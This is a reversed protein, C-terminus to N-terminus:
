SPMAFDTRVNLKVDKPKVIVAIMGGFKDYYGTAELDAEKVPDAAYVATQALQGGLGLV